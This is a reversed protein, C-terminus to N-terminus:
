GQRTQLEPLLIRVKIRKSSRNLIGAFTDRQLENGRGTLLDIFSAHNLEDSIDERAERKNRFVHEVDINLLRGFVATLIWRFKNSFFGGVITLIVIAVLEALITILFIKLTENM